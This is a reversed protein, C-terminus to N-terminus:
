TALGQSLLYKEVQEEDERSLYNRYADNGLGESVAIAIPTPRHLAAEALEQVARLHQAAADYEAGTRDYLKPVITKFDILDAEHKGGFVYNATERLDRLEGLLDLFPRLVVGNAILRQEVLRRLPDHRMRRLEAAETGPDLHLLAMAMHFMSYYFGIPALLVTGTRLHTAEAVERFTVATMLRRASRVIRVTWEEDGRDRLHQELALQYPRKM